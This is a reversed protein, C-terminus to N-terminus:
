RIYGQVIRRKYVVIIFSAIYIQFYLPGGGYCVWCRNYKLLAIM